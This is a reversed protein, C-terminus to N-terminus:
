RIAAAEQLYETDGVIAKQLTVRYTGEPWARSAEHTRREVHVEGPEPGDVLLETLVRGQASPLADLGLLHLATPVIDVNGSPVDSRLGRKFAPGYATLMTRLEFPSSSGHGATGGQTSSGRFGYPNMDDSWAASALIDAARPHHYNILEMALTGDVSGHPEGPSRARTFIAGVGPDAQLAEVIARVREGGGQEVYIQDGGVIRVGDDLGRAVLLDAVRYGGTHTSFGHDTTILINTSELMGRERLVQLIRGIEEDARRLATLTEPAGPGHDHATGDPDTIWLIALDASVEDLGYHRYSETMWRNQEGYPPQEEGFPGLLETARHEASAPAVFGRANWVGGGLRKHNLLFASGTSGSSGVFLTRGQGDLWEGVSVSTLLNGDTEKELRVLPPADGTNVPASTIGPFYVTNHMLGHRAPYSGTALSAANVRTLTPYAPHHSIARAGERGLEYLTPMLDPTVYDPRLGDIVIVLVHTQATRDAAGNACAGLLVACLCAVPPFSHMFPHQIFTRDAAIVVARM